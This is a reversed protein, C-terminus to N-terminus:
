SNRNLSRICYPGVFKGGMLIIFSCLMTKFSNDRFPLYEGVGQVVEIGRGRAVRLMNISPDIGYEFGLKSAFFGTGVGVELVPKRKILQKVVSLELEAIVRNRQYWEDYRRWFRDFVEARSM